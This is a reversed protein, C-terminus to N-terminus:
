SFNAAAAQNGEDSCLVAETPAPEGAFLGAPVATKDQQVCERTFGSGCPGRALPSKCIFM